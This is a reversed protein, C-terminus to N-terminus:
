PVVARIQVFSNFASRAVWYRSDRETRIRRTETFIRPQKEM